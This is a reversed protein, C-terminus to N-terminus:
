ISCFPRVSRKTIKPKVGRSLGWGYSDLLWIKAWNAWRARPGVFEQQLTGTRRTALSAM